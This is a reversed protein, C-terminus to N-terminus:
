VKKHIHPRKRNSKDCATPILVVLVQPSPERVDPNGKQDNTTHPNGYFSIHPEPEGRNAKHVLPEHDGANNTTHSVEPHVPDNVAHWLFVTRMRMFDKVRVHQRIHRKRHNDYECSRKSIEKAPITGIRDKRDKDTCPHERECFREYTHPSLIAVVVM